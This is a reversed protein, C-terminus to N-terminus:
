GYVRDYFEDYVGKDMESGYISVDCEGDTDELRQDALERAETLTLDIGLIEPDSYDEYWDIVVYREM